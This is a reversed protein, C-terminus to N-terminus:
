MKVQPHAALFPRSISLSTLPQTAGSNDRAVFHRGEHPEFDVIGLMLSCSHHPLVSQLLQLNARWFSELDLARQLDLMPRTAVRQATAPRFTSVM